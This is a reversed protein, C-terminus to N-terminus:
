SKRYRIRAILWIGLLVFPISLWQGMNLIMNDEFTVQNEKITEHIIRMGFVWLVFIGFLLGHPTDIKYKTWIVMLLVFLILLTLAEYLQAPHRAIGTVPITGIYNSGMKTLSFSVNDKVLIHRPRVIRTLQFLVNKELIESAKKESQIRQALKVHMLLQPNGNQGKEDLREFAVSAVAPIRSKLNETVPGAFVVGKQNHTPEGVIEGNIFNGFRIFVAGLAVVIVMRDVLQLWSDGQREHRTIQLKFGKITIKNLYLWLAVLIGMACGHSSLGGEWIKFIDIPQFLFKEPEYFLVHGLRAGIVTGLMMYILLYDLKNKVRGERGYVYFVVFRGLIFGLAFLLGYWRVGYNGIEFLVPDPNWIVFSLNLSYYNEFM